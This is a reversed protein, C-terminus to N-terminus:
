LAASLAFVSSSVEAFAYSISYYCVGETKASPQKKDFRICRWLM